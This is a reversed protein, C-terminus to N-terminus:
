FGQSNQTGRKTTRRKDATGLAKQRLAVMKAMVAAMREFESGGLEWKRKRRGRDTGQVPSQPTTSCVQRAAAAFRQSRSDVDCPAASSAPTTTYRPHHDEQKAMDFKIADDYAAM